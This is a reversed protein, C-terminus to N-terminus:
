AALRKPHGYQRIYERAKERTTQLRPFPKPRRKILRPEVRGPRNGVRIQAILRFLGVTDEPTGCLFQRQSWAIWVQLTHKFSLQRPLVGAHEAAQAMLSRILNYALMYVWVEKECMTPTKCSLAEMGLTTKIHRLDVEVHWRQLFLRSLAQKCVKRPNLFSTVLVKKGVKTERLTLADPYGAYEEATMWEPKVAPKRWQVVHDRTGLKEGTRFDTKRAGHQEFVVDVGRALLDAILFYSCYYSDALM